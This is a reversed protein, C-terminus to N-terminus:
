IELYMCTMTASHFTIDMRQTFSINIVHLCNDNPCSVTRGTVHTIQDRNAQFMRGCNPCTLKCYISVKNHDDNSSKQIKSNSCIQKSGSLKSTITKIIKSM